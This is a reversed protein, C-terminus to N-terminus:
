PGILLPLLISYIFIISVAAIVTDVIACVSAASTGAAASACCSAYQKMSNRVAAM